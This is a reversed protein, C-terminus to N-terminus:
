KEVKEIKFYEIRNKPYDYIKNNKLFKKRLKKTELKNKGQIYAYKHKSPFIYYDTKNQMYKSYDRLKKEIDDPVNEWLMSQDNNWNKQWEIGLDKAYKKYFSRARFVRDSVLKGSYPNIYRKTTGSNQGLYYWNCAQYITGIEKATPDSYATFLRYQTNKAMYNICWMLFNSALNKPSWSICAGRSVLREINKTDDGLMKSFSNPMNMLIVGALIEFENFGDNVTLYAAFWHTTFQSLNGLWEHREIFKTLNKRERKDTVLKYVFDSTKLNKIEEETLPLKKIDEKENKLRIDYQWCHDKSYDNIREIIDVM